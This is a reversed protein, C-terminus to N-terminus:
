PPFRFRFSGPNNASARVIQFLNRGKCTIEPNRSPEQRQSLLVTARELFRRSEVSEMASPVEFGMGYATPLTPLWASLPFAREGVPYPPM